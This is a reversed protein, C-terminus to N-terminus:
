WACDAVEPPLDTVILWPDAHPADWCALLTCRLRSHARVFCDVQGSWRTGVQPAVSTLPRCRDQELPRCQGGQNIRPFPPWGLTQIHRYLWRAYLGRDALVLVTGDAPVSGQLHTVLAEWHPRWAGTTTAGVVAWAM